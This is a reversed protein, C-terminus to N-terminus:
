TISRTHSPKALSVWAHRSGRGIRVTILRTSARFEGPLGRSSEAFWGRVAQVRGDAM